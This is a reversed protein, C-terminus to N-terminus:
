RRDKEKECIKLKEILGPYCSLLSEIKELKAMDTNQVIKHGYDSLFKLSYKDGLEMIKLGFERFQNFNNNKCASNWLEMYEDLKNIIEPIMKRNGPSLEITATDIEIGPDEKKEQKETLMTYKLFHTLEFFLRAKAIPKFLYRDFLPKYKVVEDPETRSATFALVPTRNLSEDNRIKETAEFGDIGPMVLDMMILDPKYLKAMKLAEEGNEAEFVQINTYQLFGKVIKRTKEEDDAVLLKQKEFVITSYDFEEGDEATGSQDPSVNVNNIVFTFTSGKGIQSEVSIDGDMLKIIGRSISLGLGSGEHKKKKRDTREYPEFIKQQNEKPIGIGTDEVAVILDIKNESGTGPKMKVIIKIYGQETYKIANDILNILVQKFRVKDLELYQPIGQDIDQLYELGKQKVQFSFNSRLENLILYINVPGPTIDFMRAEIRSMHLTDDIFEKLTKCSHKINEIYDQQTKGKVLPMLLETHGLISTLPTRIEHSMNGLFISKAQNAKEAEKKAIEAKEKQTELDKTREKVKDELEINTQELEKSQREIEKMQRDILTKSEKLNHAMDNFSKSLDGIEDKSKISINVDLNGKGISEASQALQKIPKTLSTGIYISFLAILLFITVSIGIIINRLDNVPEYLEDLYVSSCIIWDLSRLHRFFV